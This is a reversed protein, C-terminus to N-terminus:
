NKKRIKKKKLFVLGVYATQGPMGLVGVYNSLPIGSDKADNRVELFKTYPEPVVVYSGHASIGYVLDGEAFRDNKSKVVEAMVHSQMPQGLVFAPTYSKVSADRMRGRMYPDVSLVLTKILISGQPIEAQLDIDAENITMHEGVAPYKEPVKSFIVQTNQVM